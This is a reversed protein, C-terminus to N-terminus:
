LRTRVSASFKFKFESDEGLLPLGLGARQAQEGELPTELQLAHVSFIACVALCGVLANVIPM